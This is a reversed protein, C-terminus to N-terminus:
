ARRSDAVLKAWQAFSDAPWNNDIRLRTVDYPQPAGGYWNQWAVKGDLPVRALPLDFEKIIFETGPPFDSLQPTVAPKM